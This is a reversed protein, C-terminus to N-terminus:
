SILNETWLIVTARTGSPIRPRLPSSPRCHGQQLNWKRAHRSSQDSEESVGPVSGSGRATSNMM